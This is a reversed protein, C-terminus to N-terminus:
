PFSLIHLTQKMIWFLWFHTSNTRQYYNIMMRSTHLSIHAPSASLSVCQSMYELLLLCKHCSTAHQIARPTAKNKYKQSLRSITSTKPTHAHMKIETHREWISKFIFVLKFNSRLEIQYPSKLNIVRFNVRVLSLVIVSTNPTLQCM